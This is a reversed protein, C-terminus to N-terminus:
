ACRVEGGVVRFDVVTFVRPLDDSKVRKEDAKGEEDGCRDGDDVRTFRIEPLVKEADQGGGGLEDGVIKGEATKAARKEVGGDATKGAIDDNLDAAYLRGGGGERTIHENNGVAKVTKVEEIHPRGEDAHENIALQGFCAIAIVNM